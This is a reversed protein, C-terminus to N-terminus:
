ILNNFFEPNIANLNIYTNWIKKDQLHCNSTLKLEEWKVLGIKLAKETFALYYFGLYHAKCAVHWRQQMNKEKEEKRKWLGKLIYFDNKVRLSCLSLGHAPNSGHAM